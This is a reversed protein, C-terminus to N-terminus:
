FFKIITYNTAFTLPADFRCFHPKPTQGFRIKVLGAFYSEAFVSGRVFRGFHSEALDSYEALKKLPEVLYRCHIVFFVCVRQKEVKCPTM